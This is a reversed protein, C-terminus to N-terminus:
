DNTVGFYLIGYGSKNLMSSLSIVGEKLESISKEFELTENETGLNM